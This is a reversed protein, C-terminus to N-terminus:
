LSWAKRRCRHKEGFQRECLANLVTYNPFFLFERRWRECVCRQYRYRTIVKLYTRLRKRARDVFEPFQRSCSDIIAQIKEKPQKSIPIMRDLNEDVFLRVFMQRLTVITLSCVYQAHALIGISTLSCTSLDWCDKRQILIRLLIFFICWKNRDYSIANIDFKWMHSLKTRQRVLVGLFIDRNIYGAQIGFGQIWSGFPNKDLNMSNLYVRWHVFCAM